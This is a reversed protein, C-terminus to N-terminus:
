LTSNSLGTLQQYIVREMPPKANIKHWRGSSTGCENLVLNMSRDVELCKNKHKIFFDQERGEVLDTTAIEFNFFQNQDASDMNCVTTRVQHQHYQLCQDSDWGRLGTCCEKGKRNSRHWWQFHDHEDCRKLGANGNPARANGLTGGPRGLCRNSDADVRINDNERWQWM